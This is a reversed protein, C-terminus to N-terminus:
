PESPAAMPRIIHIHNLTITIRNPASSLESISCWVARSLVTPASFGSPARPAAMASVTPAALYRPAALSGRPRWPARGFTLLTGIGGPCRSHLGPRGGHRFDGVIGGLPRDLRDASAHGASPSRIICGVSAFRLDSLYHLGSFAFLAFRLYTLTRVLVGGLAHALPLLGTVLSRAVPSGSASRLTLRSSLIPRIVM